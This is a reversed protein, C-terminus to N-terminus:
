VVSKRDGAVAIGAVIASWGLSLWNGTQYATVVHDVTQWGVMAAGAVLLGKFWRYRRKPKVALIQGLTQESEIEACEVTDPLFESQQEFNMKVTLDPQQDSLPQQAEDFVIKAKLPETM